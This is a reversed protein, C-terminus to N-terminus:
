APVNTAGQDERTHRARVPNPADDTYRQAIEANLEAGVLFALASMFLFGLAVIFVGFAGYLTSPDALLFYLRFGLAGLSWIVTAVLSGPSLWRFPPRKNPTVYYLLALMLIITVIAAPWRTVAWIITFPMGLGLRDGIFAGIQSGFFFLMIAISTALMVVFALGTSVARRVYFPRKEQIEFAQNTARTLAAVANSVSWVSIVIAIVVGFSLLGQNAREVAKDLLSRFLDRTEPPAHDQVLGQLGDVISLGTQQGIGAALIALFLLFPPIAVSMFYAMEAATGLANDKWLDRVTAVALEGYPLRQAQRTAEERGATITDM